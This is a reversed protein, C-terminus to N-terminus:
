SRWRRGELANRALTLFVATVSLYFILHSLAITGSMFPRFHRHHIALRTIIDGLWGDAIRAVSWLVLMTVLIVASIIIALIQTRALASGFVGIATAAAGIALLGVYGSLVHGVSVSGRVVVLAPMFGTLVVYVLLVSYAAVFKALVIQGDTLPASGLLTFTGTQREEAITRMALFLAVTMTTGSAFYFFDRLVDASYKETSGLAYANHFLSTLALLAAMVIYGLWTRFYRALERRIVLGVAATSSPANKM